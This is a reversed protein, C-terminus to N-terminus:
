DSREKRRMWVVYGVLIGAFIVFPGLFVFRTM